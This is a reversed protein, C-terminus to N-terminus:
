YRYTAALGTRGPMLDPPLVMVRGGMGEVLEGLDDLLDDARPDTLDAPDLRGTM